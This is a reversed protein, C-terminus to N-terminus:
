RGGAEPTRPYELYRSVLLGAERGPLTEIVHLSADIGATVGASTVLRGTGTPHPHDHFRKGPDITASPASSAHPKMAALPMRPVLALSRAVAATRLIPLRCLPRVPGSHGRCNERKGRPVPGVVLKRQSHTM